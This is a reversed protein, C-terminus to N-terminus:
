KCETNEPMGVIKMVLAHSKNKIKNTPVFTHIVAIPITVPLTIVVRILGTFLKM